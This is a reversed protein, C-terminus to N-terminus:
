LKVGNALCFQYLERIEGAQEQWPRRFSEPLMRWLAVSYCASSSTEADRHHMAYMFVGFGSPCPGPLESVPRRVPNDPGVIDTLRALLGNVNRPQSAFYKM